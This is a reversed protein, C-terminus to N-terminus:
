SSESDESVVCADIAKTRARLDGKKEPETGRM